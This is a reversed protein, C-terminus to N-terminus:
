SPVVLAYAAPEVSFEVRGRECAVIEGDVNFPTAPQVDLAIAHGHAHTVDEQRALDGRRMAIAHGPLTLRSGAPVAVVDLRGDQPDAEEVEAGGGFAGSSAVILQWAEGTFVERGDVRVTCHFPDATMGAAVAGLAYAFPGLAKKLPQAKEAAVPALGGSAVNVFPRGDMRALELCRTREGRLALELAEDADAPLGHFRAFDNATGVPVVGLPIGREAALAAYPGVSGDGGAVVLREIGEPVPDDLSLRVVGEPPHLERGRGSAPNAVLAVTM